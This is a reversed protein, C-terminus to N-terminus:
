RGIVALARELDQRSFPKMLVPQGAFAAEPRAIFGGTAVLFPIGKASLAAAVPGGSEGNSLVANVIAADLDFAGLASLATEVCDACAVARHGLSVLENEFMLTLIPDDEVILIRSSVIRGRHGTAVRNVARRM